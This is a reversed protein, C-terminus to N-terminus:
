TKLVTPMSRHQHSSCIIAASDTNIIYQLESYHKKRFTQAQGALGSLVTYFNQSNQGEINLAMGHEHEAHFGLWTNGFGVLEFPFNTPVLSNCAEEM